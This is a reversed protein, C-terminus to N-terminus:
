VHTRENIALGNIGDDAEGAAALPTAAPETADEPPDLPESAIAPMRYLDAPSWGGDGSPLRLKELSADRKASAAVSQESLKAIEPPSLTAHNDKLLKQCLLGHREARCATSILASDMLTIEGRAALVEGEVFSRFSAVLSSAWKYKGPLEGLVLGRRRAALKDRDGFGKRQGKPARKVKVPSPNGSEPPTENCTTETM